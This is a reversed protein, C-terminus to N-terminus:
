NYSPNISKTPLLFCYAASILSFYKNYIQNIFVTVRSKGSLIANMKSANGFSRLVLAANNTAKKAWTFGLDISSINAEISLFTTSLLVESVSSSRNSSSSDQTFRTTMSVPTTTLASSLFSPVDRLANRMAKWFNWGNNENSVNASSSSTILLGLNLSKILLSSAKDIRSNFAVLPSIISTIESIASHVSGFSSLNKFKAKSPFAPTIMLRSGSKSTRWGKRPIGIRLGESKIWHVTVFATEQFIPRSIDM